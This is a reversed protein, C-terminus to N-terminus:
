TGEPKGRLTTQRRSTECPAMLQQATARRTTHRRSTDCLAVIHLASSLHKTHTHTHTHTAARPAAHSCLTSQPKSRFAARRCSNDCPAMPPQATARFTADRVLEELFVSRVLNLAAFACGSALQLYRVPSYEFWSCITYRSPSRRVFPRASLAARGAADSFNNAHPVNIARSTHAHRLRPREGDSNDCGRSPISILSLRSLQPTLCRLAAGCASGGALRSVKFCIFVFPINLSLFVIGICFGAGHRHKAAPKPKRTRGSPERQSGPIDHSNTKADQCNRPTPKPKKANRPLDNQNEPQNQSNTKAGQHTKTFRKPKWTPGPPLQRSRPM